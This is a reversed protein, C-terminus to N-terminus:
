TPQSSGTCSGVGPRENSFAQRVAAPAKRGVSLRVLTVPTLCFPVQCSFLWTTSALVSSRDHRAGGAQYRCVGSKQLWFHVQATRCAEFVSVFSDRAGAPWNSPAAAQAGISFLALSAALAFISTSRM